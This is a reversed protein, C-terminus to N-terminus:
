RCRSEIEQAPLNRLKKVIIKIGIASTDSEFLNVNGMLTDQVLYLKPMDHSVPVELDPNELFLTDRIRSRVGLKRCISKQSQTGFVRVEGPSIRIFMSKVQFAKSYERGSRTRTLRVANCQYAGNMDVPYVSSSALLLWSFLM